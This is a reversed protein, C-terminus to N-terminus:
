TTVTTARADVQRAPVGVVTAGAPVDDLVVAGAGVTAGEGVEVGGLVTAGAYIVAGRRITPVRDDPGFGLTVHQYVITDDEVVVGRAIVVGSPHRFDVAGIEARPDIHCAWRKALRFNLWSALYNGIPGRDTWWRVKWLGRHLSSNPSVRRLVIPKLRRGLSRAPGRPDAM